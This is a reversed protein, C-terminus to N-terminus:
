GSRRARGPDERTDEKTPGAWQTALRRHRTLCYPLYGGADADLRESSDPYLSLYDDDYAKPITHILPFEVPSHASRPHAPTTPRRSSHQPPIHFRRSWSDLIGLHAHKTCLQSTDRDPVLLNQGCIIWLHPHGCKRVFDSLINPTIGLSICLSRGCKPLVQPCYHRITVM